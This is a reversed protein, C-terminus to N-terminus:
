YLVVHLHQQYRMRKEERKPIHHYSGCFCMQMTQNRMLVGLCTVAVERTLKGTRMRLQEPWNASIRTQSNKSDLTIICKGQRANSQNPTRKNHRREKTKNSKPSRPFDLFRGSKRSQLISMEHNLNGELLWVHSAYFPTLIPQRPVEILM